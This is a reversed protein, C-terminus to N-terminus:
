GGDPVGLGPSRRSRDEPTRAVVAAIIRPRREAPLPRLGIRVARCAARMTAGTTMVDDVVVITRIGEHLVDGALHNRRRLHISGGINAARGSPPVDLQSPRHRRWLVPRIDAGVAAAVGRAIVLSHDIGRAMRRRFSIPVPVVLVGGDDGTGLRPAVAEGLMAGVQTGLRRWRTFKVDHVVGIWPRRYEGLRVVVDWPFRNGRCVPCGDDGLEHPGVNRGCRHCYDGPADQVCGAERLREPLPAAVVDLWVREIISWWGRRAPAADGARAPEPLMEIESSAAARRPPWVFGRARDALDAKSPPEPETVTQSQLAEPEM